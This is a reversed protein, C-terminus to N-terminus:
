KLLRMEHKGDDKQYIHIYDVIFDNSETWEPADDSMNRGSGTAFCVAESLILYLPQTLTNKYVPDEDLDVSFYINGDCIFTCENETWYYGFTHFTDNFKGVPCTYKKKSSYKADLSWHEPYGQPAWIEDYLNQRSSIKWGHCNAAASASNGFMETVNIETFYAVGEDWLKSNMWLSIWFADGHPMLTSMEIYGYRYVMHDRTILKAGYYYNDDYTASIYFKGDKVYTVDPRDSRVSTRGNHGKANDEGPRLVRWKSTDIGNIGGDVYDFDDKWTPHFYTSKDYGALATDYDGVINNAETFSGELLMKSFESVAMATAYPSGGNLYVKNGVAKISYTGYDQIAETGERSTNGIIIEYEGPQTNYDDNIELRYGSAAYLSDNLKEIELQALYSINYFPKVVCYKGVSTGAITIEKFDGQKEYTYDIGGTVGSELLYNDIFHKVAAKLGDNSKANIVIKKGITCIVYDDYKAGTKEELYSLGMASEPRNTNGVLIEYTDAGDTSADTINKCSVGIKTKINKFIQSSLPTIDDDNDPRIIIYVAEGDADKFNVDETSILATQESNADAADDKKSCGGFLGIVMVLVFAIALLKKM